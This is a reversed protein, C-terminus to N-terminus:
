NSMRARVWEASRLKEYELLYDIITRHAYDISRIDAGRKLLYDAVEFKEYHLATRLATGGENDRGDVDEGNEVRRKVEALNGAIVADQLETGRYSLGGM